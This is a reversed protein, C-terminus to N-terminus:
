MNCKGVGLWTEFYQKTERAVLARDEPCTHAYTRHRMAVPTTIHMGGADFIDCPEAERIYINITPVGNQVANSLDEFCYASPM